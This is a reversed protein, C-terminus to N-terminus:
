SCHEYVWDSGVIIQLSDIYPVPWLFAPCRVQVGTRSTDAVTCIGDLSYDLYEVAGHCISVITVHETHVSGSKRSM